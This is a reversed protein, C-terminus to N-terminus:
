PPDATADGDVLERTVDRFTYRRPFGKGPFDIGNFERGLRRAAEFGQKSGEDGSISWVFIKDELRELNMGFYERFILRFTNVPSVDPTLVSAAEGPFHLANLIGTRIQRRETRSKDFDDERLYPGEDGQLVIIPPTRSHALITDILEEIRLNAYELQEVYGKKSGSSLTGWPRIGSARFTFPPHPLMFHAFVFKPGPQVTIEEVLEFQRRFERVHRKAMAQPVLLIGVPTMAVLALSFSSPSKDAWAALDLFEEGDSDAVSPLRWDFVKRGDVFKYGFDKLITGVEHGSNLDREVFDTGDMSKHFRMNLSSWLSLLTTAYNCRSKDAIYFGKGELRALFERNDFSYASALTSSSAYRDFILYYIDPTSPQNKVVETSALFDSARQDSISDTSTRSWYKFEGSAIRYLAFLVLVSAALNAISNLPRLDRKTKVVCRCTVAITALLALLLASHFVNGSIGDPSPYGFQGVVEATTKAIAAYLFFPVVSCTVLIGAVYANKIIAQLVTFVVLVTASVILIPVVVDRAPVEAAHRAYLDLVPWVAFLLPHIVRLHSCRLNEAM